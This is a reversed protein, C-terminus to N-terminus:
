RTNIHKLIYKIKANNKAVAKDAKERNRMAMHEGVFFSSCKFTYYDSWYEDVECCLLYKKDLWKKDKFKKRLVKYWRAKM